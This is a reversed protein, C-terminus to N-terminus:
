QETFSPSISICRKNQKCQRGSSELTWLLWKNLRPTEPYTKAQTKATQLPPLHKKGLTRSMCHPHAKRLSPVLDCSVLDAGLLHLVRSSRVLPQNSGYIIRCGKNIIYM